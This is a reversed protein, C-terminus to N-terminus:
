SYRSSGLMLQALVDATVAVGLERVAGAFRELRGKREPDTEAAIAATLVALFNEALESPEAGPWADLYVRTRDTMVVEAPLGNIALGPRAQLYESDILERVTAAFLQRQDDPLEDAVHPLQVGNPSFGGEEWLGRLSALVPRVVPWALKNDSDAQASIAEVLPAVDLGLVRGEIRELQEVMERGLRTPTLKWLNGGYDIDIAGTDSLEELMHDDVPPPDPLAHHQLTSSRSGPNYYIPSRVISGETPQAHAKVLLRLVTMQDPEDM